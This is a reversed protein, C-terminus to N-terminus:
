SSPPYTLQKYIRKWADFFRRNKKKKKYSDAGTWLYVLGVALKLNGMGGTMWMHETCEQLTREWQMDSRYMFGM